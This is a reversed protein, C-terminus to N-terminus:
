NKCNAHLCNAWLSGGALCRFGWPTQRWVVLSLSSSYVEYSIKSLVSSSWTKYFSRQSYTIQLPVGHPLLRLDLGAGFGTSSTEKIKYSEVGFLFIKCFRCKSWSSPQSQTFFSWEQYQLPTNKTTTSFM